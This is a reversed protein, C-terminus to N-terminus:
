AHSMVSCITITQKSFTVEWRNEFIPPSIICSHTFIYRVPKTDNGTNSKTASIKLYLSRLSAALIWLSSESVAAFFRSSSLSYIVLYNASFWFCVVASSFCSFNVFSKVSHVSCCTSVKNGVELYYRANSLSKSGSSWLLPIKYLPNTNFIVFRVFLFIAILFTFIDSRQKKSNKSYVPQNVLHQDSRDCSETMMLLIVGLRMEKSGLSILNFAVTDSAKFKNRIGAPSYM